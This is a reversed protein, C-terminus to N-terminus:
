PWFPGCLGSVSAACGIEVCLAPLLALLQPLEAQLADLLLFTDEAPEYVNCDFAMAVEPVRAPSAM